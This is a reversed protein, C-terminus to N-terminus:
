QHLHLARYVAAFLRVSGRQGVAVLGRVDVCDGEHVTWGTGTTTRQNLVEIRRETMGVEELEAERMAALCDRRSRTRGDTEKRRVNQVIPM